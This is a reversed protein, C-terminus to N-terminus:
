SGKSQMPTFSVKDLQFRQAKCVLEPEKWRLSTADWKGKSAAAALSRVAFSGAKLQRGICMADSGKSLEQLHHAWTLTITQSKCFHLLKVRKYNFIFPSISIKELLHVSLQSQTM